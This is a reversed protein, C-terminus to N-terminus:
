DPAGVQVRLTYNTYACRGNCDGEGTPSVSVGYAKGPTLATKLCRIDNGTEGDFMCEGDSAIVEGTDPDVVQLALRQFAFPFTIRIDAELAACSAPTTLRVWDASDGIPLCSDIVQPLAICDPTVLPYAMEYSDDPESSLEPECAWEEVLAPIVCRHTADDCAQSEPCSKEPGCFYSGPLVEPTCGIFLLSAIVVARM